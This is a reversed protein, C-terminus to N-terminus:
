FEDASSRQEPMVFAEFEWGDAGKSAFVKHDLDSRIDMGACGNFIRYHVKYSVLLGGPEIEVDTIVLREVAAHFNIHSVDLDLAGAFPGREGDADTRCQTQLFQLLRPKPLFPIIIKFM